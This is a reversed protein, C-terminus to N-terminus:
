LLCNMGLIHISLLFLVQLDWSFSSFYLCDGCSVKELNSFFSFVHARYWRSCCIPNGELWLNHLSPLSTLIELDTFSSIINYSLDLGELSKLNDIGRLSTLANNRLVLKVIRCSVQLHNFFVVKGTLENCFSGM